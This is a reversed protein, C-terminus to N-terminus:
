NTNSLTWERTKNSLRSALLQLLPNFADDNTHKRKKSKSSHLKEKEHKGIKKTDSKRDDNSSEDRHKRKSNGDVAPQADNPKPGRMDIVTITELHRQRIVGPAQFGVGVAVNQWAKHTDSLSVLSM